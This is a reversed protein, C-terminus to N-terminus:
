NWYTADINEKQVHLSDWIHKINWESSDSVLTLSSFGDTLIQNKELVLIWVINFALVMSNVSWPLINREKTNRIPITTCWFLHLKDHVNQHNREESISQCRRGESFSSLCFLIVIGLAVPQWYVSLYLHNKLVIHLIVPFIFYFHKM